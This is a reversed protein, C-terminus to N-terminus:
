NHSFSFVSVKAFSRFLKIYGLVLDLKASFGAPLWKIRYRLFSVGKYDILKVGHLKLLDIWDEQSYTRMYHTVLPSRKPTDELIILKCFILM